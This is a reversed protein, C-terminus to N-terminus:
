RNKIEVVEGIGQTTIAKIRIKSVHRVTERAPEDSECVAKLSQGKKWKEIFFVNEFTEEDEGYLKIRLLVNSLNRSSNNKVTLTDPDSLISDNEKFEGSITIDENVKFLHGALADALDLRCNVFQKHLVKAKENFDDIKKIAMGAEVFGLITGWDDKNRSANVAKAGSQFVKLYDSLEPEQGSLAVLSEIAQTAEKATAALESKGEAIKRAKEWKSALSLAWEEDSAPKSDPDRLPKCVLSALLTIDEDKMEAASAPWVWIISLAACAIRMANPKLGARRAMNISKGMYGSFKGWVMVIGGVMDQSLTM